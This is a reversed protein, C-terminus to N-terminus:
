QTVGQADLALLTSLNLGGETVLDGIFTPLFGTPQLVRREGADFVPKLYVGGAEPDIGVVETIASVFRRRMREGSRKPDPVIETSLQIVLDLASAIQQHISSVPLNSDASQQVMVELRSIVDDPTNAHLTTMSGDHGTNMAQLMDLAEGGRCEGVIIRDPRMRLANKVLMRIDVAGKGEVNKLKTELSVVHTKPLRLEATDEITIIREKDPIFASLANLLTTKGTGTGGSVLINCKMRVAAELFDSAASSLAGMEVLREMTLPRQPFRRITLCPGGVTLPKIIANVRSGDPLRADVMPESTDIKRQVRSVIRRIFDELDKVFRRGSNEVIGNKEIFINDADNVMIESITPNELLDELPGLGYMIDKIEKRIQSLFMYRVLEPGLGEGVDKWVTWFRQDIKRMQISMDAKPNLELSQATKVALANVQKETNRDLSHNQFWMAKSSTLQTGSSTSRDPEAWDGSIVFRLLRSKLFTAAFHDGASTRSMNSAPLLSHKEALDSILQEVQLIYEGELRDAEAKGSDGRENLVLLLSNHLDNIIGSCTQDLARRKDPESLAEDGSSLTVTLHCPYCSLTQGSSIVVPTNQRLPIDDAMWGDSAPWFKWGAGDGDNYLWGAEDDIFNTNLVVDNGSASGIKVPNKGAPLSKHAVEDNIDNTIHFRM